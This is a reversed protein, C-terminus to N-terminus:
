SEYVPIPSIARLNLVSGARAFTRSKTELLWTPRSVVMQLTLELPDHAKKRGRCAGIRLFYMYECVSVCVYVYTLIFSFKM